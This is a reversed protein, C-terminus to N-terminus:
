DAEVIKKRHFRKKSKIEAGAPKTVLLSCAKIPPETSHECVTDYLDPDKKWFATIGMDTMFLKKDTKNETDM